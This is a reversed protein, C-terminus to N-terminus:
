PTAAIKEGLIPFPYSGYPEELRVSCESMDIENASALADWNTGFRITETTDAPVLFSGYIYVPVGNSLVELVYDKDQSTPNEVTVAWSVEDSGWWDPSIDYEISVIRGFASGGAVIIGETGYRNYANDAVVGESVPQNHAVAFLAVVLGISALLGLLFISEGVRKWGREYEEAM